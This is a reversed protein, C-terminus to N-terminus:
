AIEQYLWVRMMAVLKDIDVPKTLYDSAGAEVCKRRDEQMAKATLAIIPLNKYQPQQRIRRMAEHGDMVPMMIDMLVIDIKEAQELQELAMQGNDALTVNMGQKKLVKSLAFTNRLDDDVLLVNCGEISVYSAQEHSADSLEVDNPLQSPTITNGMPQANIDSQATLGPWDSEPTSALQASKFHSMNLDLNSLFHSDVSTLFLEVEDQLRVASSAGNIIVHCQYHELWARQENSPEQELCLIIQIEIDSNLRYYDDFWQQTDPKIMTLNIIIGSIALPNNGLRHSLEDLSDVKIIEAVELDLFSLDVASQDNLESYVAIQLKVSPDSALQPDVRLQSLIHEIQNKELPKQHFSNAGRESIERSKVQGSIVHVPINRTEPNNKLSDLINIGSMDPLGLDLIVGCPNYTNVLEIGQLGNNAVAPKFGSKAALKALIASFAPDDEIIVIVDDGVAIENPAIGAVQVLGDNSSQNVQQTSMINLSSAPPAIFRAPAITPQYIDNSLEGEVLPLLLTFTSGRNEESEIVLEGCLLETLRRSITLGLGTGGYKRNTSGDAQQFSEFISEQKEKSIGIGSDIVAIALVKSGAEAGILEYNDTVYAHLKVSGSDTFKLANSLLNKLIQQTKQIDLVIATPINQDLEISFGLSKENAVPNFQGLLENTIEALQLSEVCVEMKGAEIKSLDLIDNILSLLEKGSNHIVKASEVQDADLNKEDNDSLIRSLILMSNLPTRLEHSMNALFESKYRSSAELQEAKEQLEQRASEIVINKAKVATNQKELSETKQELASNINHVEQSQEELEKQSQALQSSRQEVEDNIARLEEERVQLEEMQQQSQDLLTQLRNHSEAIGLATAVSECTSNLLDYTQPHMETLWGLELVAIVQDEKMIPYILLTRPQIEGMSSSISVYDEPLETLVNSKKSQAVQGILGDGLEIIQNGFHPVFAYGGILELEQNKFIYLSGVKANLHNSFFAVINDALDTSIQNGRMTQSLSEIGDQLWRKSEKDKFSQRIHNSMENISSALQGIEDTSSIELHQDLDGATIANTTKVMNIIPRTVRRSIFFAILLSPVFIALAILLVYIRRDSIDKFAEAKDIKVVMGLNYKPLYRWAAIIPVNRYDISLGMGNIGQVAEQIPIGSNSNINVRVQNPASANFRLPSIFVAKNGDLKALVTEGTAQLATFDRMIDYLIKPTLQLAIAGKIVNDIYIPAAIFASFTNNDGAYHTFKSHTPKQSKLVQQVVNALQTRNYRGSILNTDSDQRRTVSYVLDGNAAIIHVNKLKGSQQYYSLFPMLKKIADHYAESKNPLNFQSVLLPLSEIIQPTKSLLNARALQADFQKDILNIKQSLISDLSDMSYTAQSNEASSISLYETVLLPILAVSVLVILLKDQIRKM